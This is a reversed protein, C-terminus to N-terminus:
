FGFQELVLRTWGEDMNGGWYRQYIAIRAPQLPHQRAPLDAQLPYIPVGAAGAAEQLTALADSPVLFAGAPLALDGSAVADELRAVPVGRHLLRNVVSFSDNLRGDLLYGAAAPTHPLPPAPSCSLSPARSVIELRKPLPAQLPDVRVGMFE